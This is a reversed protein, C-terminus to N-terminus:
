DEIACVSIYKSDKVLIRTLNLNIKVVTSCHSITGLNHIQAQSGPRGLIIVSKHSVKQGYRSSELNTM